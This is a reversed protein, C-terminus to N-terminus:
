SGAEESYKLYVVLNATVDEENNPVAPTFNNRRENKVATTVKCFDVLPDTELKQIILNIEQLNNGTINVTLENGNVSWAGLTAEPLILRQILDVILTRDVRSLEEATMGSYTYHAYRDLLDGFSGLEDYAADLERQASAAASQARYMALLRDAVAYKSLFGAGLIILIIGPIALKLNISNKTLDILNITRKVPLNVKGRSKRGTGTMERQKNKTKVAM